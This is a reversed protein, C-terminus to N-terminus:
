FLIKQTFIADITAKYPMLLPLSWFYDMALIFLIIGPDGHDGGGYVWDVGCIDNLNSGLGACLIFIKWIYCNTAKLLCLALNSSTKACMGIPGNHALFIIVHDEPTELATEYIRKTSAEMDQIGYRFPSDMEILQLAALVFLFM